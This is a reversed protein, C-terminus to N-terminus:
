ELTIEATIRMKYAETKEIARPLVAKATFFNNILELQYNGVTTHCDALSFPSERDDVDFIGIGKYSTQSYRGMYRTIYGVEEGTKASLVLLVQVDKVANYTQVYVYTEGNAYMPLFTVSAPDVISGSTITLPLVKRWVLHFGNLTRKEILHYQYGSKSRYLRTIMGLDETLIAGNWRCASTSQSTALGPIKSVTDIVQLTPIDGSIVYFLYENWYKTYINYGDYDPPAEGKDKYVWFAACANNLVRPIYTGDNSVYCLTSPSDIDIYGDYLKFQFVTVPRQLALPHFIIRESSKEANTLMRMFMPYKYLWKKDVVRYYIRTKRTGDEQQASWGQPIITGDPLTVASENSFWLVINKATEYYGKQWSGSYGKPFVMLENSVGSPDSDSNIERTAPGTYGDVGVLPNPYRDWAMKDEPYEKQFTNPMTITGLGISKITGNGQTTGWEWVKTVKDRAYTSLDNRYFGYKKDYSALDVEHLTLYDSACYNGHAANSIGPSFKCVNKSMNIDDSSCLIGQYMFDVNWYLDHTYKDDRDTFPFGLTSIYKHVDPLVGNASVSDVVADTAPDLLEVKVSFGM